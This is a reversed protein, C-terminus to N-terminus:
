RRPRAGVTADLAHLAGARLLKLTVARGIREAGLHQSLTRPRTVGVDDIALLIDGPLVGAAEAPGGTALGVVMLGGGAGATGRLSEPVMVPQLGVGLWGRPVAGEALLPGVVRAVTAAPIVLTRRRPGATSMGMLAGGASLVPGGEDQGLRADLRIMADIRGGAMSHWAEGAAHVLALRATAAGAVDAGIVLALQGVQPPGAMAPLPAAPAELTLVAVNTGRDRGAVRAQVTRGAATVALAAADEPLMQESTVVVGERWLIGSAARRGLDLSVVAGAVAAVRQALTDSLQELADM